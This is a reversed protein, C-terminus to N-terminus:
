LLNRAQAANAAIIQNIQELNEKLVYGEVKLQAAAQRYRPQDYSTVFIIKAEPRHARIQNAAMLGDIPKMEIDMLVWDPQHQVFAALAEQGSACEVKEVTAPLSDIICRRMRASDDVILFKMRVGGFPDTM